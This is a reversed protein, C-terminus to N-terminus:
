TCSLLRIYKGLRYRYKEINPYTEVALTRLNVLGALPESDFRSMRGMDLM